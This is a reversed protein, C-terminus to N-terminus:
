KVGLRGASVTIMGLPVRTSQDGRPADFSALIFVALVCLVFLLFDWITIPKM